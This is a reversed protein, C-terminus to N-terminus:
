YRSWRRMRLVLSCSYRLLTGVCKRRVYKTGFLACPSLDAPSSVFAQESEQRLATEVSALLLRLPQNLSPKVSCVVVMKVVNLLFPEEQRLKPTRQQSPSQHNFICPLFCILTQRSTPTQFASTQTRRDERHFPTPGKGHRHSLFVLKCVPEHATGMRVTMEGVETNTKEKCTQFSCKVYLCM